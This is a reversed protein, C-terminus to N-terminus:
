LSSKLLSTLWLFRSSGRQSGQPGLVVRVPLELHAEFPVTWTHVTSCIVLLPSPAVVLRLNSIDIFHVATSALLQMRWTLDHFPLPSCPSGCNRNQGSCPRHNVGPSLALVGGRVDVPLAADALGVALLATPLPSAPCCCGGRPEGPPEVPSKTSCGHALSAFVLVTLVTVTTGM